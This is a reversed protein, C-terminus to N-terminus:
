KTTKAAPQEKTGAAEKQKLEASAAEVDSMIDSLKSVEPMKINKLREKFESEFDALLTPAVFPGAKQLSREVLPIAKDLLKLLEDAAGQPDSQVNTQYKSLQEFLKRVEIRIDRSEYQYKRLGLADQKFFEQAVDIAEAVFGKIRDIAHSAGGAYWHNYDKREDEVVKELIVYASELHRLAERVPNRM